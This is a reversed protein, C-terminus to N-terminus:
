TALSAPQTGLWLSRFRKGCEQRGGGPRQKGCEVPVEPGLVRDDESHTSGWAKELANAKFTYCSSLSAVM